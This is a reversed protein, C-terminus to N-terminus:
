RLQIVQRPSPCIWTVYDIDGLEFGGAVLTENARLILLGDKLNKM